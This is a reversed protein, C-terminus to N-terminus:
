SRASSSCAIKIGDPRELVNAVTTYVFVLTVLGFVVVGAAQSGGRPPLAVAFAASTMMALVGTAYAGGQADM